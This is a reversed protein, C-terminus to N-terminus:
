RQDRRLHKTQSCSQLDVYFKWAMNSINQQTRKLKINNLMLHSKLFELTEYFSGVPHLKTISNIIGTNILQEVHKPRFV